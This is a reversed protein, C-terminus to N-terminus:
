PKSKRTAKTKAKTKIPKMLRVRFGVRGAKIPTGLWEQNANTDTLQITVRFEMEHVTGCKCCQAQYGKMIPDVWESWGSKGLPTYTKFM